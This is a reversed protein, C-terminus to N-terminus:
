QGSLAHVTRQVSRASSVPAIGALVSFEGSSTGGGWVPQYYDSFYFGNHVLRYM